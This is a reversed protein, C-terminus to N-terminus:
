GRAVHAPDGAEGSFCYQLVPYTRRLDVAGRKVAQIPRREALVDVVIDAIRAVEPAKM